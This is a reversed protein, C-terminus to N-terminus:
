EQELLLNQYQQHVLSVATLLSEQVWKYHVTEEPVNMQQEYVLSKEELHFNGLSNQTNITELQQQLQEIQGGTLPDKPQVQIWLGIQEEQAKVLADYM